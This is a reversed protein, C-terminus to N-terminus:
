RVSGFAFVSCGIPTNVYSPDVAWTAMTMVRRSSRGVQSSRNFLWYCPCCPFFHTPSLYMTRRNSAPAATMCQIAYVVHSRPDFVASLILISLHLREGYRQAMFKFGWHHM